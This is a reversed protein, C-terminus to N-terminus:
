DLSTLKNGYLTFFIEAHNLFDMYLYKFEQKSSFIKRIKKINEKEVEFFKLIEISAQFILRKRNFEEM